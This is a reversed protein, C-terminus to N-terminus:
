RMRSGAVDPQWEQFARHYPQPPVVPPADTPLVANVKGSTRDLGFSKADRPQQVKFTRTSRSQPLQAQPGEEGLRIRKLSRALQKDPLSDEAIPSETVEETQTLRKGSGKDNHMSDRGIQYAPAIRAAPGHVPELDLHSPTMSAPLLNDYHKEPAHVDERFKEWHKLLNSPWWSPVGKTLDTDEYFPNSDWPRYSVM